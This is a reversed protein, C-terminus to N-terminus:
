YILTCLSHKNTCYPITVSHLCVAHLKIYKNGIRGVPWVSNNRTVEEQSASPVPSMSAHSARTTGGLFPPTEDHDKTMNALFCYPHAPTYTSAKFSGSDATNGHGQPCQSDGKFCSWSFSESELANTGQGSLLKEKTKAREM